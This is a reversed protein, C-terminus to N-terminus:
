RSGLPLLSVQTFVLRADLEGPLQAASVWSAGSAETSLVRSAFQPHEVRFDYPVYALHPRGWVLRSSFLSEGRCFSLDLKFRAVGRADTVESSVDSVPTQSDSWLPVVRAGAVPARAEGSVATIEIETRVRYMVFADLSLDLALLVLLSTALALVAIRLHAKTLV